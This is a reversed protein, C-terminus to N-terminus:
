LIGRGQLMFWSWFMEGTQPVFHWGEFPGAVACGEGEGQCEGIGCLVCPRTQTMTPVALPERPARKPNRRLHRSRAEPVRLTSPPLPRITLFPPSPIFPLHHHSNMFRIITTAHHYTSLKTPNTPPRNQLITNTNNRGKSTSYKKIATNQAITIQKILESAQRLITRQALLEWNSITNSPLVLISIVTYALAPSKMYM